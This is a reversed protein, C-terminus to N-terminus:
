KASNQFEWNVTVVRAKFQAPVLIAQMHHTGDSHPGGFCRTQGLIASFRFRAVTCPQEAITQVLLLRDMVNEQLLDKQDIGLENTVKSGCTFYRACYFM